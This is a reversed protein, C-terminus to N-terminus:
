GFGHESLFNRDIRSTEHNRKGGQLSLIRQIYKGILDSELNVPIGVGRKGLATRELTHPIISVTFFDEGLENITLSIGDVAISGKPVSLNIIEQPAQFAMVWANGEQQKEKLRGMGDVHGSVLHGGFRGGAAMARELNVPDGPKLSGLTTMRLTEPSVDVTFSGGDFSVVTLCAGSVAISDGPHVDQLVSKAEITMQASNQAAKVARMKGMEEVIGTFMKDRGQIKVPATDSGAGSTLIIGPM